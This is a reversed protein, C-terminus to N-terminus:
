ALNYYADGANAFMTHDATQGQLAYQHTDNAYTPYGRVPDDNLATRTADFWAGFDGGQKALQNDQMSLSSLKAAKSQAAKAELTKNLQEFDKIHESEIL